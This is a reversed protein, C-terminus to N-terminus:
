RLNRHRQRVRADALSDPAGHTRWYALVSDVQAVTLRRDGPDPSDFNVYEIGLVATWPNRGAAAARYDYRRVVVM